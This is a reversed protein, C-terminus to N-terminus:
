IQMYYMNPNNCSNIDSSNCDFQVEPYAQVLLLQLCEYKFLTENVVTVVLEALPSFYDSIKLNFVFKDSTGFNDFLLPESVSM